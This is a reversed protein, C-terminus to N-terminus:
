SSTDDLCVGQPPNAPLDTGSQPDRCRMKTPNGPLGLAECGGDVECSIFTPMCIPSATGAAYCEYDGFDDPEHGRCSQADELDCRRYCIGGSPRGFCLSDAGCAREPLSAAFICGVITCYGNHPFPRLGAEESWCEMAGGCDRDDQCPDGVRATASGRDHARCLGSAVDCRGPLACSAPGDPRWAQDPACFAEPHDALCVEAGGVKCSRALRLPCDRGSNCRTGICFADSGGIALEAAWPVCALGPPCSTKGLEPTCTPLCRLDLSASGSANICRQGPACSDEDAPTTPDDFSCSPACVRAGGLLGVCSGVCCESSQACLEGIAVSCSGGDAGSSVRRTDCGLLVLTTLALATARTSVLRAGLRASTPSSM